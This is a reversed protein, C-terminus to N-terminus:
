LTQQIVCCKYTVANHRKVHRHPQIYKTEKLKNMIKVTCVNLLPKFPFM